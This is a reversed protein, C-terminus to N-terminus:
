SVVPIVPAPRAAPPRTTPYIVESLAVPKGLIQLYEVDSNNATVKIKWGTKVVLMPLEETTKNREFPQSFKVTSNEDLLEFQFTDNYPSDILISEVKFPQNFETLDWIRSDGKVIVSSTELTLYEEISALGINALIQETTSLGLAEKVQDNAKTVRLYSEVLQGNVPVLGHTLKHADNM